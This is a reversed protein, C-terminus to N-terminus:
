LVECFVAILSQEHHLDLAKYRRGSVEDVFETARTEDDIGIEVDTETPDVYIAVDAAVDAGEPGSIDDSTTTSRITASIGRPYNDRPVWEGDAYENSGGDPDFM